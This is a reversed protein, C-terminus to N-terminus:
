SSIRGARADAVGHDTPDFVMGDRRAYLANLTFDRRAADEAWDTTFAVTARRGDTTVDTRLTTIEHPKRDSVATVTGHDLGTPVVGLKAAKLAKIVRDPTLTTAIDIDSNPRGLLANRVVGGVFRACDPGGEAELADLVAATAPATMWPRLGLSETM